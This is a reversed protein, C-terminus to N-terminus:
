LNFTLTSTGITTNAPVSTSGSSLSWYMEGSSFITITWTRGSQSYNITRTASPRCNSSITAVLYSSGPQMVATSYFVIYFSVVGGSTSISSTPLSFGSAASFSGTASLPCATTNYGNSVWQKQGYTPSYINIDTEEREQYGTNNGSSTVCRLNGTASWSPTTNITCDGPKDAYNYCYKKLINNDQDRVFILRSYSDYIFYTIRNSVDTKSTMGVLPDYTYTTMLSNVPYLRLDDIMGSGSVTVTGNAALTIKHEFYTWGRVTSGSSASTANVTRQGNKSWYSVIYTGGKVVTKTLQGAYPDYVKKGTVASADSVPTGYYVWNGKGDAEFSTFAIESQGANSIEAVPYTSNYDWIYSDTKDYNTVALPSNKADYTISKALAYRTDKAFTSVSGSPPIIGTARNSFKFSGTTVPTASEWKYYQDIVNNTYTTIQGALVSSIGSKTQVSVQEIPLSSVSNAAGSYDGAYTIYNTVTKADSTTIETRTPNVHVPNDYFYNTTQTLAAGSEDYTTNTELRPKMIATSIPRDLVTYVEWNFNANTMLYRQVSGSGVSYGNDTPFELYKYVSVQPINLTNLNVYDITSFSVNKFQGSAQDYSEILKTSLKPQTWENFNIARPTFYDTGGIGGSPISVYASGTNYSPSTYSYTTRGNIKNAASYDTETVSQYYVPYHSAAAVESTPESSYERYKFSGLYATGYTQSTNYSFDINTYLMMRKVTFYDYASPTVAAVGGTNYTYVKGTINGSGDDSLIKQIRIGPGDILAMNNNYIKNAEYSFTSTGGTPYHITKIMGVLKANLNPIKCNVDGNVSQDYSQALQGNYAGRDIHISQVPIKKTSSYTLSNCYGWWDKTKAFDDIIGGTVGPYYDFSYKEIQVNNRDNFTIDQITRSNNNFLPLDTGPLKVYYSFNASKLIVDQLTKVTCSNLLFDSSSSVPYSFEIKGNDFEIQQVYCMNFDNIDVPNTQKYTADQSTFYSNFLSITNCGGGNICSSSNWIDCDKIVGLDKYTRNGLWSAPQVLPHGYKFKISGGSPTNISSLYWSTPKTLSSNTTATENYGYGSGDSGFKYIVGRDDTLIFQTGNYTLLCPTYTLFVVSGNDRIIFKTSIGNVSISYIDYENDKPYISSNSWTIGQDFSMLDDAHQSQPYYFSAPQEVHGQSREDPRGRVERNIVGSAILSWNLGLPSFNFDPMRGSAHFSAAVPFSYDKLTITYLPISIQPIGTSYDVPYDIYKQFSMATPSPPIYSQRTQGNSCYYMCHFVFIIGLRVALRM